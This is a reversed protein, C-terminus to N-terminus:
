LCGALLMEILFRHRLKTIIGAMEGSYVADYKQLLFGLSNVDEEWLLSSGLCLWFRQHDQKQGFSHWLFDRIQLSLSHDKLYKHEHKSKLSSLFGM